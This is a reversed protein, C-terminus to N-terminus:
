ESRQVLSPQQQGLGSSRSTTSSLRDHFAMLEQCCEDLDDSSVQLAYTFEQKAFRYRVDYYNVLLWEAFTAYDGADLMQHLSQVHKKGIRRSVIELDTAEHLQRVSDATALYQRQLCAVRAPLTATVLVKADANQIQDYVFDPLHADGIKRAEGEVFIYSPGNSLSSRVLRDLEHYLLASFQKQTRPQEDVAGYVSGKHGALGELDLVPYNQRQLEHLLETKRTGTNGFLVIFPPVTKSLRELGKWVINNMYYKYGGVVQVAQDFGNMRLLNTVIRSRMGGRWCYVYIPTGEKSLSRDALHRDLTDFLERMLPPQFVQWGTAIASDAGQKAYTWGILHRHADSMLPVSCADKVHGDHYEKPTRVDVFLGKKVTDLQVFAAEFTISECPTKEMGVAYKISGGTTLQRYQHRLRRFLWVALGCSM